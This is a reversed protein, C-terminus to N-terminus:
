QFDGSTVHFNYFHVIYLKGSNLSRLNHFAAVYNYEEEELKGGDQKKKCAYKLVGIVLAM